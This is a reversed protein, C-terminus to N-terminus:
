IKRALVLVRKRSRELNNRGTKKVFNKAWFVAVVMQWTVDMEEVDYPHIHELDSRMVSPHVLNESLFKQYAMHPPYAFYLPVDPSM